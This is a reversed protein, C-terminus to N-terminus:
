TTALFGNKSKVFDKVMAVVEPVRLNHGFGKTTILKSQPWVKHIRVAHHYPAEEDGEDHIILGPISLSSAFSPASFYEPKQELEKVFHDMIYKFTRENMGTLKKYFDVYDSGEGPSGMLILSGTQLHKHHHLAHMTSISGMSHTVALDLPGVYELFSRIAESYIPINAYKGSSLGHAPADFAYLTHEASKLTEIYKKWRYSHSQWGHFFAIKKPGNGWQYGRLQVGRSEFSLQQATDLYAKHHPKVPPATPTCFINFGLEGVKGPAVLALTNLYTGLLKPFLKNAM